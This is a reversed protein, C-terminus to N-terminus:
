TKGASKRWTEVIPVVRTNINSRWDTTRPPLSAVKAAVMDYKPGWNSLWKGMAAGIRPGITPVGKAIAAGRWDENSLKAIQSQRRKSAVAAQVGAAYNKEANESKAPDLWNAQSVGAEYRAPIYAISAEFNARAQEKSKVVM